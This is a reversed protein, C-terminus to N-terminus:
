FVAEVHAVVSLSFVGAAVEAPDCRTPAFVVGQRMLSALWVHRM